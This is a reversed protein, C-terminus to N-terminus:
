VIDAYVKEIRNLLILGVFYVVFSASATYLLWSWEFFGKGLFAYRFFEVLSTLPNLLLLFRKDEDVVSSLPFLVPTAFLGYQVLYTVVGSLDRYKVLMASVCLGAGLLFLCQFFFLLPFLLIWLNPNLDLPTFLVGYSLILLFIAFQLGFNFADICITSIGFVIKPIYVKSLIDHNALLFGSLKSFTVSSFSWMLTGSFYFFLPPLGDTSSGVAKGFLFFVLTGIVPQMFMWLPGLITQKYKSVFDKKFLLYILYKGRWIEAWWGKFYSVEPGITTRWHVEKGEKEKGRGGKKM